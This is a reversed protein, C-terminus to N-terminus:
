YLDPNLKFFCGGGTVMQAAGTQRDIAVIGLQYISERALKATYIQPLTIPFRQERMLRENQGAELLGIAADPRAAGVQVNVGDPIAVLEFRYLALQQDLNADAAFAIHIVESGWVVEPQGIENKAGCGRQNERTVFSVPMPPIPTPTATARPPSATTAASTPTLSPQTLSFETEVLPAFGATRALPPDVGPEFVRFQGRDAYLVARLTAS